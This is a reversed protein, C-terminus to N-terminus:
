CWPHQQRGQNSPSVGIHQEEMYLPVPAGSGKIVERSGVQEEQGSWRPPWVWLCLWLNKQYDASLGGEGRRISCSIM